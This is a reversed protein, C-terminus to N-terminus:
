ELDLIEDLRRLKRNSVPQDSIDVEYGTQDIASTWKGTYRGNELTLEMVGMGTVEEIHWVGDDTRTIDVLVYEDDGFRFVGEWSCIDEPCGGRLYRIYLEVPIEDDFMGSFLKRDVVMQRPDDEDEEPDDVAIDEDDRGYNGPLGKRIRAIETARRAKYEDVTAAEYIGKLRGGYWSDRIKMIDTVAVGYAKRTLMDMVFFYGNFREPAVKEYLTDRVKRMRVLEYRMHVLAHWNVKMGDGRHMLSDFEQQLQVQLISDERMGIVPNDLRRAMVMYQRSDQPTMQMTWYVLSDSEPFMRTYSLVDKTQLYNLVQAVMDQETMRYKRKDKGERGFVGSTLMLCCCFLVILRM